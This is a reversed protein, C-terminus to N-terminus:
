EKGNLASLILAQAKRKRGYVDPLGVQMLQLLDDYLAEARDEIDTVEASVPSSTHHFLPIVTGGTAKANSKANSEVNWFTAGGGHVVQWAVPEAEVPVTIKPTM